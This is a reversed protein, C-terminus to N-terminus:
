IETFSVEYGDFYINYKDHSVKKDSLEDTTDIEKVIELIYEGVDQGSSSLMSLVIHEDGLSNPYTIKQFMATVDTRDPCHLIYSIKYMIDEIVNDKFNWRLGHTKLATQLDSKSECDAVDKNGRYIVYLGKHFPDEYISAKNKDVKFNEPANFKSAPAKHGCRRCTWKNQDISILNLSDSHETEYEGKENILGLM